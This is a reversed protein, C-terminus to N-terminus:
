ACLAYGTHEVHMKHMKICSDCVTKKDYRDTHTQRQDMGFLTKGVYRHEEQSMSKHEKKLQTGDEACKHLYEIVIKERLTKYWKGADFTVSEIGPFKNVLYSKVKSVYQLTAGAKPVQAIKLLYSSFHSILNRVAVVENVVHREEINEMQAPIERLFPIKSKADETAMFKEFHNKATSENRRSNTSKKSALDETEVDDNDSNAGKEEDMGPNEDRM